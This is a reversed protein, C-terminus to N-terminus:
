EHTQESECTREPEACQLDTLCDALCDTFSSVLRAQRLCESGCFYSKFLDM